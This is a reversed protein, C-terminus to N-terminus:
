NIHVSAIKIEDRGIGAIKSNYKQKQSEIIVDIRGKERVLNDKLLGCCRSRLNVGPDDRPVECSM